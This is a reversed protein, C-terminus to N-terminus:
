KRTINYRRGLLFEIDKDIKKSTDRRTSSWEDNSITNGDNCAANEEIKKYNRM